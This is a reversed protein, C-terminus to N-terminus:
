DPEDFFGLITEAAAASHLELFGNGWQTFDQRRGANLHADVRSTAEFLDDDIISM